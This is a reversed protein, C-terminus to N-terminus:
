KEAKKLIDFRIIGVIVSVLIFVEAAMGAYSGVIFNYVFWLPRPILMLFRITRPNKQWVAIAGFSQAVVPLIDSLTKFTILGTVVYLGIFIYPWVRHKAWNDTERKYAVFVVGAEVFNMLAGTWAGLLSFHVVFILLGALMVLLLTERKKKQFSFIVFCLALYGIGQILANNM